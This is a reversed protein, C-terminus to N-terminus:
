NGFNVAMPVARVTPHLYGHDVAAQLLQSAVSGAVGNGGGEGAYEVLVCFAIQPDDAPAYGMFWAHIVSERKEDGSRYWDHGTPPDNRNAAKMPVKVLKGDKDL